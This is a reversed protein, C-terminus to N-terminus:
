SHVGDAEREAAGELDLELSVFHHPAWPGSVHVAHNEDLLTALHEVASDFGRGDGRAVLCALNVAESASKPTNEGFEIDLGSLAQGVAELVRAREFELAAEFMRGVEVLQDRDAGAAQVRVKVAALEPHRQLVYAGVDAVDWSVRLGMEVCGAVRDLEDLLRPTEASLAGVLTGRDPIVVGFSVPLPTVRATVAGIVGHHASLHRRQPRLVRQEFESVVAAVPGAIVSTVEAGDLGEVGSLDLADQARVIAYLYLGNM